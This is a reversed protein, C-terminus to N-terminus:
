LSELYRVLDGVQDEGLQSTKGHNDGGGCSPNFRDRLTAACGNHLFPARYAVGHLSPVQLLHGPETTGVHVSRNSTLKAGSHCSSCGVGASEFLARGRQAQADAADVIAAPPELSSLWRELAQKREPTQKPGGM